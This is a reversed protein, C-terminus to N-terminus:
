PVSSGIIKEVRGDMGVAIVQRSYFDSVWLRGDYWRSTELFDNGSILTSFERATM